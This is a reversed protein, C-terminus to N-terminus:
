VAVPFSNDVLNVYELVNNKLIKKESDDKYKYGWSNFNSISMELMPYLERLAEIMDVFSIKANGEPIKVEAIYALETIASIQKNYNKQKSEAIELEDVLTKLTGENLREGALEGALSLWENDAENRSELTAILESLGLSKIKKELEKGIFDWLLIANDSEEFKPLEKKKVGVVSLDLGIRKAENIIHGLKQSRVFDGGKGRYHFRDIEVYAVKENSLDISTSDWNASQPNYHTGGNYIFVKQSHKSDKASGSSRHTAGYVAPLTVEPIDTLLTFDSDIFGLKKIIQKRRKETVDKNFTFLFPKKGDNEVLPVIRKLVGRKHSETNLILLANEDAHIRLQKGESRVKRHGRYSRAYLAVDMIERLDKGNSDEDVDIYSEGLPKGNFTLDKKLLRSISYLKGSYSLLSDSLVKAQWLSDCESFSKEVEKVVEKSVTEIKQSLNKITYDTYQLGERSASIELEGIQFELVLNECTFGSLADDLKLLSSDIPYGINGMVAIADGYKDGNANWKWCNGSYIFDFDNERQKGNVIPPVRFYKFTNSAKTSFDEVDQGRVPIIIELGNEEDTSESSLQAICGVQSDDIYANYTTKEGDIYANIVFNDGYAFASKSGIGLMGTQSNTGRKTSEGYFAFVDQIEQPSLSPGFDRVKFELNFRSPLTVQIPREPIGAEIHADAANTSYERIVATIKDSYLQNRLIHFIHGIGSEKIGFSAVNQIGSTIVSTPKEIVKM